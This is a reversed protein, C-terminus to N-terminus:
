ALDRSQTFTASQVAPVSAADRGSSTADEHAVEASTGSKVFTIAAGAVLTRGTLPEAALLWGLAVAVVPNVFTHTAVLTPSRHELLWMYASYAIVSGFVILYGLSLASRASVQSPHFAAVEGTIGATILLLMAGAIM